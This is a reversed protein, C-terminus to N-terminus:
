TTVVAPLVILNGKLYHRATGNPFVIRLDYVYSGKPTSATTEKPLTLVLKGSARDSDFAIAFTGAPEEEYSAAFAASATCGTLDIPTGDSNKITVAIELTGGREIEPHYLKSM